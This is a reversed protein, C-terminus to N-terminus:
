IRRVMWIMSSPRGQKIQCPTNTVVAKYTYTFATRLRPNSWQQDHAPNTVTLTQSATGTNFGSITWGSPTTLSASGAVLTVGSPLTDALNISTTGEAVTVTVTYTVEEGITATAKDVAKTVGLTGVTIASVNDSDPTTMRLIQEVAQASMSPERMTGMWDAM